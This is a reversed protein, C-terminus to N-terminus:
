TMSDPQTPRCPDEHLRILIQNHNTVSALVPSALSYHCCPQAVVQDEQGCEQDGYTEYKQTTM